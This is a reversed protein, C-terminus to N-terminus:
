VFKNPGEYEGVHSLHTLLAVGYWHHVHCSLAREVQRNKRMIAVM